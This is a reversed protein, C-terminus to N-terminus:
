TGNMIVALDRDTPTVRVTELLDGGQPDCGSRSPACWSVRGLIYYFGPPVQGFTFNGQGDAKASRMYPGLGPDFIVGSARAGVFAFAITQRLKRGSFESNIIAESHSTLPVLRVDSGAGYVVVGDNRRLFLQGRVSATGRAHAFEAEAANFPVVNKELATACNAALAAM